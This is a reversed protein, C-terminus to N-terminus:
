GMGVQFGTFFDYAFLASGSCVGCLTADSSPRCQKSVPNEVFRILLRLNSGVGSFHCISKDFM